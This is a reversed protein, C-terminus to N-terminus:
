KDDNRNRMDNIQYRLDDLRDKLPEIVDKLTERLEAKKIYDDAVSVKFNNFDRQLGAVWKVMGVVGLSVLANLGWLVISELTM